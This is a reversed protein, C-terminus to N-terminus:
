RPWGQWPGGRDHDPHWDRDHRDGDSDRHWDDHCTFWDFNFGWLPDWFEGPCWHYMPVPIPEAQAVGIAPGSGTLAVSGSMLVVTTARLVRERMRKEREMHHNTGGRGKLEAFQVPKTEAVVPGNRTARM